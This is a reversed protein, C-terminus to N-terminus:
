AVEKWRDNFAQTAPTLGRFQAGYRSGALYEDVGGVASAFQYTGYSVGGHDGRGSSIWGPGRNSTEYSASTQGRHWGDMAKKADTVVDM